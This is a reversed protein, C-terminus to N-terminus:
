HIEILSVREINGTAWFAQIAEKVRAGIERSFRWLGAAQDYKPDEGIRLILTREVAANKDHLHYVTFHPASIDVSPPSSNPDITIDKGSEANIESLLVEMPAILERHNREEENM